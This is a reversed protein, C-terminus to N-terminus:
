PTKETLVQDANFIESASEVILKFGTPNNERYILRVPGLTYWANCRTIPKNKQKIVSTPLYADKSRRNNKSINKRDILVINDWPSIDNITHLEERKLGRIKAKTSIWFFPFKCHNDKHLMHTTYSFHGRTIGEDIFIASFEYVKKLIDGSDVVRVLIFDKTSETRYIKAQVGIRKQLNSDIM